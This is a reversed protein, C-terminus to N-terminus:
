DTAPAAATRDPRPEAVQTVILVLGVAGAGTAVAFPVVFGFGVLIGSLLTGFAIGLGFGMTLLSLTSGSAGESALDGALALSPAFVAAVALGQLFRAVIMTGSGTVFGQALTTPLLLVFGGVLFPRRGYRDSLRGIPLQFLVNAFVTAGFQISYLFSGQGLRDNIVNALPAYIAISLAMVVTALALAFVPDLWGEEGRVRISIDESAAETPEPDAILVSVLAFSVGAGAVAILFAADFGSVSRGALAYPGGAVVV